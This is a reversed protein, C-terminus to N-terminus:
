RLNNLRYLFKWKNPKLNQRYNRKFRLNDAANPILQEQSLVEQIAQEILALRKEKSLRVEQKTPHVNVDVLLPDMEIELVAIPFRGVM